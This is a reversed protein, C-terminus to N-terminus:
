WWIRKKRRGKIGSVQREGGEKGRRWGVSKWKHRQPIRGQCGVKNSWGSITPMYLSFFFPLLIANTKNMNQCLFFTSGRWLNLFPDRLVRLPWLPVQTSFVSFRVCVCLFVIVILVCKWHRSLRVILEFLIKLLSFSLPRSKLIM